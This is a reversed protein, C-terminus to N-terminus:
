SEPWLRPPVRWQAVVVPAGLVPAGLVPAGNLPAPVGALAQGSRAGVSVIVTIAPEFGGGAPRQGAARRPVLM